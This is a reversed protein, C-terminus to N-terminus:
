GLREIILYTLFLAILLPVFLLRFKIIEFNLRKRALKVHESTFVSDIDVDAKNRTEMFSMLLIEDNFPLEIEMRENLKVTHIIKGTDHALVLGFSDNVSLYKFNGKSNFSGFLSVFEPRNIERM